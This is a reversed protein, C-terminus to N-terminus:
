LASLIHEAEGQRKLVLLSSGRLARLAEFQQRARAGDNLKLYAKGLHFYSEALYTQNAASEARAKAEELHRIAEKVRARDVRALRWLQSGHLAEIGKAYHYHLRDDDGPDTSRVAEAAALPEVYSLRTQSSPYLGLALASTLAAVALMAAVPWRYPRFVSFLSRAPAEPRRAPPTAVRPRAGVLRERIVAWPWPGDAEADADVPEEPLRFSAALAHCADCFPLHDMLPVAKETALRGDLYDLLDEPPPCPEAWAAQRRRYYGELVPEPEFGYEDIRNAM